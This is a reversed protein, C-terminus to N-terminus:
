VRSRLQRVEEQLERIERRLDEIESASPGDHRGMTWFCAIMMIAMFFLGVLPFLWGFGGWGYGWMPM